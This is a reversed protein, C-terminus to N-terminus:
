LPIGPKHCFDTVKKEFEDSTLRGALDIDFGKWLSDGNAYCTISGREPLWYRGVCVGALLWALAVVGFLLHDRV